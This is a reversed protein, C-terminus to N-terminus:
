EFFDSIIATKRGKKEKSKKKKKKKLTPDKFMRRHSCLDSKTHNLYKIKKYLYM